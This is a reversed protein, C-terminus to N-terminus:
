RLQYDYIEENHIYAHLTNEVGQQWIHQLWMSFREVFVPNHALDGYVPEIQLWIKPNKVALQAQTQLFAWQSDNPMIHKGSQTIGYCYRCWLASALALGTVSQKRHLRDRISPVIFKSQRNYGDSCLRQITDGIKKNQLRMQVIEFYKQPTMHGITNVLPFIEGQEVKCLFGAVLPHQMADYVYKIDLLGGAYAIIAHGGNLIRIKMNEYETVDDVFEVGVTEWDPRGMSFWDELVWQTFNECFVPIDDAIGYANKVTSRQCDTTAPTICDVMSNPFAVHTQIWNVMEPAIKEALGVVANKTAIGNHPVNDCSMITFPPITNQVRNKLAQLILGFVTKPSHPHQIDHQIDTHTVDFTNDANLFYGGETVTLSVIRIYPQSLTEIIKDTDLPNIFDTMVGLVSITSQKNDQIVLTSLYDQQKLTNYTQIDYETVGTGIIAWDMNKHQNFLRQVYRQMHARHFNGVGFHVIGPSIDNRTYNPTHITSDFTHLNEYTINKM